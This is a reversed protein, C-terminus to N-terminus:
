HFEIFETMSTRIFTKAFNFSIAIFIHDFHRFLFSLKTLTGHLDHEAEDIPLSWIDSREDTVKDLGIYYSLTLGTTVHCCLSRSEKLLWLSLQYDQDTM